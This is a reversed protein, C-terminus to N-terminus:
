KQSSTLQQQQSGDANMTYLEFQGTRDSVFVLRQSDPFWSPAADVASNDTLATAGTGDANMMYIEADGDQTSVYVIKTGDPSVMPDTKIVQQRQGPLGPFCGSLGALLTVALLILYVTPRKVAPRERRKSEKPAQELPYERLM